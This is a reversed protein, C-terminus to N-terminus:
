CTILRCARSGCCDYSFSISTANVFGYLPEFSVLFFRFLRKVSLATGRCLVRVRTVLFSNFSLVEVIVNWAGESSFSYIRGGGCSVGPVALKVDYRVNGDKLM